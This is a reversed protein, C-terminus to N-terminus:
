HQLNQSRQRHQLLKHVIEENWISGNGYTQDIMLYHRCFFFFCCCPFLFLYMGGFELYMGGFELFRKDLVVMNWCSDLM